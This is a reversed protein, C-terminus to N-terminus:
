APQSPSSKFRRMSHQVRDPPILPHSHVHLIGCASRTPQGHRPGQFVPTRVRLPMGGCPSVNAASWHLQGLSLQEMGLRRHASTRCTLLAGTLAATASPRHAALPTDAARRCIRVRGAARVQALRQVGGGHKRALHAVPLHGAKHGRPTPLASERVRPVRTHVQGLPDREKREAARDWLQRSYRLHQHRQVRV